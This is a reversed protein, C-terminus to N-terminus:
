PAVDPWRNGASRHGYIMALVARERPSFGIFVNTHADMQDGPDLSHKLGLAHGAEHLAAHALYDGNQFVLEAGVITAGDADFTMACYGVAGANPDMTRDIRWRVNCDGAQTQPIGTERTMEDAVVSVVQPDVDSALCHHFALGPKWRKLPGDERDYVLQHVYEPDPAPWLYVTAARPQERVLYGPATVRVGGDLPEVVANAVPAGSIGDVAVPSPEPSPSPTPAAPSHCAAAAMLVLPLMPYRM